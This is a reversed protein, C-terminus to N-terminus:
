TSRASLHEYNKEVENIKELYFALFVSLSMAVTGICAETLLKQSQTLISSLFNELNTKAHMSTEYVSKHSFKVM